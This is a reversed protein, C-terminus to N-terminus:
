QGSTLLGLLASVMRRQAQNGTHLYKARRRRWLDKHRSLNRACMLNVGCAMTFRHITELDVANWNRLKSVKDVTSRTLGSVRAIERTSMLVRGRSRRALLRCLAPPFQNVHPLLYTM